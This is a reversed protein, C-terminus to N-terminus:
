EEQMGVVRSAYGTMELYGKGSIPQGDRQGTVRIAGEWYRIPDLNLEQNETAARVTAM